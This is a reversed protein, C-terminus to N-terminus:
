AMNPDFLLEAEYGAIDTADEVTLTIKIPEGVQVSRPADLKLTPVNPRSSLAVPTIALSSFILGVVLVMRPVRASFRPQFRALHKMLTCKREVHIFFNPM